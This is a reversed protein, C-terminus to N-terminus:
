CLRRSTRRARTEPPPHVSHAVHEPEDALDPKPVPDDRTISGQVSSQAGANGM